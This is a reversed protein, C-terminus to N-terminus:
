LVPDASALDAIRSGVWDRFAAAVPTQARMAILVVAKRSYYRALGGHNGRDGRPLFGYRSEVLTEQEGIQDILTPWQALISRGGSIGLAATLEKNSFWEDGRNLMIVLPNAEPAPWQSRDYISM